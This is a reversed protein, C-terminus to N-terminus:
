KSPRKVYPQSLIAPVESLSFQLDDSFVVVGHNGNLSDLAKAVYDLAKWTVNEDEIDDANICVSIGDDNIRVHEQVMIKQTEVLACAVKQVKESTLAHGETHLIDAAAQFALDVYATKATIISVDEFPENAAEAAFIVRPWDTAPITNLLSKNM